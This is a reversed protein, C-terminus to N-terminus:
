VALGPSPVGAPPPSRRLWGFLHVGNVGPPTLHTATPRLIMLLILPAYWLVYRGGHDAFWFQIGLLVTANVALLQGLNRAKPWVFTGLVFGLYAIFLPLRYYWKGGTWVSDTLPKVWPQWDTPHLPQLVGETYGGGFLLAFTTLAASGGAAALFWVAFRGSGRGHYFQWWAPFLVLPFFSTGAAIGLLLGAVSPRHFALVAGLVFATPWVHHSQDFQYATPPLLLYLAAATAATTADQFHKLCVLVLLVVVACQCVVAVGRSAWARVVEPPLEADPQAQEVVAAATQEMGNVAAPTKGVREPPEVPRALTMVSLGVLLAGALVFLGASRMNPAVRPRRVILGDLVCRVFWVASAGLLWAYGALREGASGNRAADEILLFGPAFLGLLLLDLNRLSFLRTFQLFCAVAVAGAAYWWVASGPPDFQLFVSPV